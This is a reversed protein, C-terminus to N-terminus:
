RLGLLQSNLKGPGDQRILVDHHRKNGFAFVLENVEGQLLAEGIKPRDLKVDVPAFPVHFTKRKELIAVSVPYKVIM